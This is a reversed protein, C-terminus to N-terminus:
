ARGSRGDIGIRCWADCLNHIIEEPPVGSQSITYQDIRLSPRFGCRIPLFDRAEDLYARQEDRYPPSRDHAPRALLKPLAIKWFYTPYIPARGVRRLTQLRHLRPLSFHQREDIEIFCQLRPSYIDYTLNFRRVLLDGKSLVGRNRARRNMSRLYKRLHLAADGHQSDPDATFLIAPLGASKQIEEEMIADVDLHDTVADFITGQFRTKKRM